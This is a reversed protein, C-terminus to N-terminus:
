LDRIAVKLLVFLVPIYYFKELPGWNPVSQCLTILKNVDLPDGKILAEVMMELESQQNTNGQYFDQSLVYYNDRAVAYILKVGVDQGDEYGLHRYIEDDLPEADYDLDLIGSNIDATVADLAQIFDLVVTTSPPVYEEGGVVNRGAPVYRPQYMSDVDRRCGKPYVIYPIGTVYVSRFAPWKNFVSTRVLWMEEALGMKLFPDCTRLLDWFTFNDMAQDGDCNLLKIKPLIPHDGVEFLDLVFKTLFPDYAPFQQCPMLLTQYEQSFFRAFYLSMLQSLHKRMDGHDQVSEASLLPNQGYKLFDKQFFYEQITKRKLDDMRQPSAYDVLTFNIEYCTQKLYNRPTSSTVTFVGANGDGVDAVFMDGVQPVLFPYMIATGTVDWGRTEPNQQRSLDGQLKLEYNSIKRYQQYVPDRDLQQAVPENSQDLIQSWYDVRWSSGEIYQLLQSLPTYRTDVIAGQYGPPTADPRLIKQPVIAPATPKDHVIPM